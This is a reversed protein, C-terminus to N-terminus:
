SLVACISVLYCLDGLYQIITVHIHLQRHREPCIFQRFNLRVLLFRLRAGVQKGRSPPVDCLVNRMFHVMCRQYRTGPFVERIAEVLGLYEDGVILRVEQLGREKLHRLFKLWSEKDEKGGEAAGIM